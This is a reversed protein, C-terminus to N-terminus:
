RSDDEFRMKLIFLSGILAPLILNVFWIGATTAIIEVEKHTIFCFFYTATISRLGIDFLNFSPLISQVFLYVCVMIWTDLLPIEPVLWHLLLYYQFTYIVYRGLSYTFIRLLERKRYRTLVKFFYNFKRLFAISCLLTNLWRINFYFILLLVVFFAVGFYAIYIIWFDFHFFTSLFWCAGALGFVYTVTLQAISGVAMAVIGLIRKRTSLFFVRGGYEGIRNPTFIAWTVGCFVSELATIFSIKEIPKLIYQWKYTEIIWNLLMMGVMLGGMIIVSSTSFLNLKKTLQELNTNQVIKKYILVFALVILAVKFCFVM